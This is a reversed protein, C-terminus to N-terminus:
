VPPVQVERAAPLYFMTLVDYREGRVTVAISNLGSVWVCCLHQLKGRSFGGSEPM